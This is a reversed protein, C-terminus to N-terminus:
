DVTYGDHCPSMLDRAPVTGVFVLLGFTTLMHDIPACSGASRRRVPNHPATPFRESSPSKHKCAFASSRLAGARPARVRGNGRRFQQGSANARHRATACGCQLGGCSSWAAVNSSSTPICAAARRARRNFLESDTLREPAHPSNFKSILARMPTPWAPTAMSLDDLLCLCPTATKEAWPIQGM